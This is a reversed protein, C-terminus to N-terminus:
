VVHATTTKMATMIRDTGTMARSLVDAKTAFPLRQKDGYIEEVLARVFDTIEMMAGVEKHDVFAHIEPSHWMRKVVVATRPRINHPNHDSM